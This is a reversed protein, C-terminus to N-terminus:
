KRIYVAKALQKVTEDADYTETPTTQPNDVM